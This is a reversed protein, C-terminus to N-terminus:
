GQYANERLGTSTTINHLSLRDALFIIKQKQSCRSDKKGWMFIPKTFKQALENERFHEMLKMKVHDLLEAMKGPPIITHSPLVQPCIILDM